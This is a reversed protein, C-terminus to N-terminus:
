TYTVLADFVAELDEGEFYEMYAQNGLEEAVQKGSEIAERHLEQATAVGKSELVLSLV